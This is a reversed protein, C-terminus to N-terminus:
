SVHSWWRRHVVVLGLLGIWQAAIAALRLGGDMQWGGFMEVIWMVSAVMLLLVFAVTAAVAKPPPWHSTM